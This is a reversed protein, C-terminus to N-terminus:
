TEAAITKEVSSLTLYRNKVEEDRIFEENTGHYMIRGQDMVYHRAALATCMALNQEVLLVTIGGEV